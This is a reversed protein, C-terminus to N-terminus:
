AVEPGEPEVAGGGNGAYKVPTVGGGASSGGRDVAIGDGVTALLRGNGSAPAQLPTSGSDELSAEPIASMNGRTESWEPYLEPDPGLRQGSVQLSALDINEPPFVGSAPQLGASARLPAQPGAGLIPWSPAELQLPGPQRRRPDSSQTQPRSAM